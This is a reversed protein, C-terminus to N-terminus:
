RGLLGMSMVSLLEAGRDQSLEWTMGGLLGMRKIYEVKKRVSWLDEIGIWIQAKRDYLISSASPGDHILEWCKSPHHIMHKIEDYAFCDENSVPSKASGKHPLGITPSSVGTFGRGYFPIGLVLKFPPVGAAIYGRVTADTCIADHTCPTSQYLASHHQVTSTWSGAYDYTMLNIFDVYQSIERMNVCTYIHPAASTAITLELYKNNLCTNSLHTFHMRLEYLLFAFHKADDPSRHNGEEGGKVPFEWDIDLGDLNYRALLQAASHVFRHRAAPNAAVPSFHASGTWGGVSLLIRVAPNRGKLATALQHICGKAPQDPSDGPFDKQIDAWPDSFCITGDPELKGFAYNIHTLKHLPIDSPEYPPASYIRWNPFYGVVVPM